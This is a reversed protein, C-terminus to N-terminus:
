KWMNNNVQRVLYHKDQIKPEVHPMYFMIPDTSPPVSRMGNTTNAKELFVALDQASSRVSM